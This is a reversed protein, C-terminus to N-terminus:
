NPLSGLTSSRKERRETTWRLRWEWTLCKREAGRAAHCPSRGAEMVCCCRRRREGSRVLGVQWICPLFNPTLTSIHKHTIERRQRAIGHVFARKKRRTPQSARQPHHPNVAGAMDVVARWATVFAFPLAAAQVHSLSRPKLGAENSTVVVEEAFTGDRLADVCLWAEDGARLGLVSSGTELVVRLRFCPFHPSTLCLPLSGSGERGLVAPLGGRAAALASQGYGDAVMFDLPNVGAAVVRV